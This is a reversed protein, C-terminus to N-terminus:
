LYLILMIIKYILFNTILPSEFHEHIAISTTILIYCWPSNLCIIWDNWNELGSIPPFLMAKKNENSLIRQSTVILKHRIMCVPGVRSQCQVM